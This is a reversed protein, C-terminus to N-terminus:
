TTPQVVPWGVGLGVPGFRRGAGHWSLCAWRQARFKACVHGSRVGRSKTDAQLDENALKWDQCSVERGCCRRASALADSTRTLQAAQVPQM